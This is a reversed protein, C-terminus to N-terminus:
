SYLKRRIKWFLRKIGTNNEVHWNAIWYALELNFQSLENVTKEEQEGNSETFGSKEWSKIAVTAESLGQLLSLALGHTGDSVGRQAFFRSLFESYFKKTIYSGDVITEDKELQTTLEESQISTYRNLRDLYQDVHQYNHHIIAIDSVAPLERVNGKTIPISHIEDSWSVYGKKFLRLVYDPWWGTREMAKNFILNRRPIYYCDATEEGADSTKIIGQIAKRLEQPVEEDADVILVWDGTAKKIAFNRAPEVYGIDAHAFIKDTFKSVIDITNDTSKMDVVIIEDAFKVSKLTNEITTEANKTNIVVSLKM